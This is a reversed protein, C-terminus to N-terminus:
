RVRRPAPVYPTATPDLGIAGGRNDGWCWVEAGIIACTHTVGSAIATVVGLGGIQAPHEDAVLGSDVAIGRGLQGQENSGWCAVSGGQVIACSHTWGVSIRTAGGLPTTGDALLVRQPPFGSGTAPHGTAARTADGWCVVTADQMIVCVHVEGVSVDIARAGFAGLDVKKPTLAATGSFDTPDGEGYSNGGWCWVSGDTAMIACVTANGASMGAVDGPPLKPAIPQSQATMDGQGLQGAGNDGACLVGTPGKWCVVDTDVAIWAADKMQPIDTPTGTTRTPALVDLAIMYGWCSVTGDNKRACSANNGSAVSVVDTLGIAALENPDPNGSGGRGLEDNGNHGWCLAQGNVARCV